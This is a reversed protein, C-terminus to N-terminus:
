EASGKRDPIVTGAVAGVAKVTTKATTAAVTVAADAVALVACGTLQVLVLSVALWRFISNSTTLALLCLSDPKVHKGLKM